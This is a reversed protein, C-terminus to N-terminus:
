HLRDVDFDKGDWCWVNEGSVNGMCRSLRDRLLHGSATLELCSTNDVHRIFGLESLFGLADAVKQASAHKPQAHHRSAVMDLVDSLLTPRAM